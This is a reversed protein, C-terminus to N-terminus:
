LHLQQLSFTVERRLGCAIYRVASVWRTTLLRLLLLTRTISKHNAPSVKLNFKQLVRKVLALREEYKEHNM